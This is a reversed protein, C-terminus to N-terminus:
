GSVETHAEFKENGDAHFFELMELKKVGPM